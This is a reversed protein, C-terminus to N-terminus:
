METYCHITQNLHTTLDHSNCQHVQGLLDRWHNKHSPFTRSLTFVPSPDYYTSISWPNWRTPSGDLHIYKSQTIDFYYCIRRKRLSLIFSGSHKSSKNWFGALIRPVNLASFIWFCIPPCTTELHFSSSNSPTPTVLKPNISSLGSTGQDHILQFFAFGDLSETNSNKLELGEHESLSLIEQM